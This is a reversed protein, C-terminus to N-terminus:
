QEFERKTVFVDVVRQKTMIDFQNTLTFRGTDEVIQHCHPNVSIIHIRRPRRKISACINQITKRFTDSAFPDFYYFWNYTDLEEEVNAADNHICQIAGNNPELQLNRLNRIMIGYIEDEYEVGGVKQFGYDLFTILASGKGCGFDFVADDKQPCIHCKDLIPFIEKPSLTVYPHMGITKTKFDEVDRRTVFDCNYEHELYTLFQIDAEANVYEKYRKGYVLEGFDFYTVGKVFGAEKLRMRVKETEPICLWVISDKVDKYDFDFLSDKYLAFEYPINSSYDQTIIYDPRISHYYEAYWGVFKGSYGYGYLVVRKGMCKCMMDNLKERFGELVKLM